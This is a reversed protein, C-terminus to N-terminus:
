PTARSGVLRGCGNPARGARIRDPVAAAPFASETVVHWGIAASSGAQTGTEVRASRGALGAAVPRSSPSVPWCVPSRRHGGLTLPGAGWSDIASVIHHQGLPRLVELREAYTSGRASSKM